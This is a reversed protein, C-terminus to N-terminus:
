LLGERELIAVLKRAAEEPSGSILEQKRRAQEPARTSLVESQNGIEAPLDLDSLSWETVPKKGAKLIEKMSPLRAEHIDSTVSLVAPLPVELVEVEDELDREVLVSGSSVATNEQAGGELTIARIANFTPAALLEGLQLGVQQFYLDASGEGCLVLDYSGLKRIASELVRATFASDAQALREDVVMVLADPGRSLVDKKLKSQAIQRPGASLVTVQGGHAEVLRVGAEIAQVDFGGIVWEARELSISGDSKVEIDGADPVLKACVIINM